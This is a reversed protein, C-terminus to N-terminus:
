PDKSKLKAIQGAFISKKEPILLILRQYMTIAQDLHGQRALLAALTESAVEQSPRISSKALKRAEKKKKRKKQDGKREKPDPADEDRVLALSGNQFLPQESHDSTDQPEAPLTNQTDPGAQQLRQLWSLFGEVAPIPTPPHLSADFREMVSKRPPPPTEPETSARVELDKAEADLEALLREELGALEDGSTMATEEHEGIEDSLVQPPQYVPLTLQLTGSSPSSRMVGADALPVPKAAKRALQTQVPLPWLDGYTVQRFLAARDPCHFAESIETGESGSQAERSKLARVFQVNAQCPHARVFADLDKKRLASLGLIGTLCHHFWAKDMIPESGSIYPKIGMGLTTHMGM